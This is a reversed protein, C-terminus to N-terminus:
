KRLHRWNRLDLIMGGIKDWKVEQWKQLELPDSQM